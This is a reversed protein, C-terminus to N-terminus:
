IVDTDMNVPANKKKEQNRELTLAEGNLHGPSLFLASQTGGGAFLM